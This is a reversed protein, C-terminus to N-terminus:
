KSRLDKLAQTLSWNPRNEPFIERNECDLEARSRRPRRGAKTVLLAPKGNDTVVVSQGSRLAKVIGPSHFFERTTMTKMADFM